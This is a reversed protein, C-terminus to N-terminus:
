NVTVIIPAYDLTIKDPQNVYKDLAIKIDDETKFRVVHGDEGFVIQDDDCGDTIIMRSFRDIKIKVACEPESDNDLWMNILDFFEAGYVVKYAAAVPGSAHNFVLTEDM